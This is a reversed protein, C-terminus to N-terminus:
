KTADSNLQMAIDKTYRVRDKGEEFPIFMIAERIGDAYQHPISCPFDIWAQKAKDACKKVAELVKEYDSGDKEHEHFCVHNGTISSTSKGHWDYREFWISYGYGNQWGLTSLQDNSEWGLEKMELRIQYIENMSLNSVYLM